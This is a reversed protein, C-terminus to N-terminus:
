AGQIASFGMEDDYVFLNETKIVEFENEELLSLLSIVNKYDVNKNEGKGVFRCRVYDLIDPQFEPNPWIKLGKVSAIQMNLDLEKTLEDLNSLFGSLDTNTSHDLFVDVGVLEKKAKKDNFLDPINKVIDCSADYSNAARALKEPVQGLNEIVADAFEKTGVKKISIEPDYLDGTHVGQEITYHLANQILAADEYKGIHKLMMIAGNILGTPNAIDQGAIDPASGHIAEFMAYEDGINASGCMGVSGAVEAAIDSVIDGYLNETVIVDFQEPDSAVKAAAIDVIMQKAEIEPYHSAVQKFASHFAGDSLKMINDKIFCTVTKRKNNAAYDFAFKAIKKSGKTSILKLSEFVQDTLRYEIGAYLDEENERVIVLDMKPFNCKVFPHYSIVPRVNAYLSLTKRLTVNLSKYGNGQPTTIPAKLIIRNNKITEWSSPAIGSSYNRRYQEAGIEIVDVSLNTKAAQLIRLTAEMIEPGIGDGYAVTIKNNFNKNM